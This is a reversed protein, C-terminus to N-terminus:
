IKRNKSDNTKKQYEDIILKKAEAPDRGAGAGDVLREDQGAEEKELLQKISQVRGIVNSRCIPPNQGGLELNGIMEKVTLQKLGDLDKKREMNKKKSERKKKEVSANKRVVKLEEKRNNKKMTQIKTKPTTQTSELGIVGRWWDEWRGKQESQKKKKKDEEKTEIEM